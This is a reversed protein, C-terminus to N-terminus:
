EKMIDAHMEKASTYSKGHKKTWEIDKLMRAEQAPTLTNDTRVDFPIGKTQVIQVLYINIATSLDLGLKELIKMADKKTKEPTRVQITTM